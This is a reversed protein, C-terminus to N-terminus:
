RASALPASARGSPLDGLDRTMFFTRVYLYALISLGRVDSILGTASEIGRQGISCV